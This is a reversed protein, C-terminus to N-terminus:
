LATVDTSLITDDEIQTLQPSSMVLAFPHITLAELFNGLLCAYCLSKRFATSLVAIVPM